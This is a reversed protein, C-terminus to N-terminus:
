SGHGPVSEPFCLALSGGVLTVTQKGDSLAETHNARMFAQIRRQEEDSLEAGPLHTGQFALWLTPRTSPMTRMPVPKFTFTQGALTTIVLTDNM